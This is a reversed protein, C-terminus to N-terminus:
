EANRPPTQFASPFSSTKTNATSPPWGCGALVTMTGDKAISLLGKFADAVILSGDADSVM